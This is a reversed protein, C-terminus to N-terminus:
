IEAERNVIKALYGFTVIDFRDIWTGYFSCARALTFYISRFYALLKGTQHARTRSKRHIALVLNVSLNAPPAGSICSTEEDKEGCRNSMEEISYKTSM